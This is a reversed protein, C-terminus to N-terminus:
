LLGARLHALGLTASGTQTTAPIFTVPLAGYKIQDALEKATAATFQGTIQSQGTLVAQIERPSISEKDVVGAVLCHTAGSSVAQAATLCTDGAAPQFAERTLATWKEQGTA